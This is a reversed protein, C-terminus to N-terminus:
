NKVKKAEVVLTQIDYLARPYEGRGNGELDQLEPFDSQGIEKNLVEKFEFKELLHTLSGLSHIMEHGWDRYFNNIVWINSHESEGIVETIEPTFHKMSLKIYDSNIPDKPNNYIDILFDVYPIAMRMVGEPKLVRYCESLMKCSNRFDLHEFIHESYIFDLSNDEFPFRITADLYVIESIKSRKPYLDTNLWGKLLNEGTGINLMPKETQALYKKILGKSRSKKIRTKIYKYYAFPETNLFQILLKKM